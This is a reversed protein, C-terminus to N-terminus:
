FRFWKMMVIADEGNAYYEPVIFVDRYGNRRYFQQAALNSVRVELQVGDASEIAFAQEERTLLLRGTGAMRHPPSVALNAIHGYILEGTDEIGGAIFGIIRGGSTAVLFTTPFFSLAETLIREDWPDPFSDREIAAIAPVDQLRAKRIRIPGPM